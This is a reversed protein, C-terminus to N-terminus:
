GVDLDLDVEVNAEDLETTRVRRLCNMADKIARIIQVQARHEASHRPLSVECADRLAARLSCSAALIHRTARVNAENLTRLRRGKQDRAERISTERRREQKEHRVRRRKAAEREQLGLLELRHAEVQALIVERITQRDVPLERDQDNDQGESM